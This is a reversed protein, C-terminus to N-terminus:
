TLYEIPLMHPEKMTITKTTTFQRGAEQGNFRGFGSNKFGGHPLETSDHVTMSNIHVAGSEIRRAVDLCQKYDQGWVSSSLGVDSDNAIRVADDVDKARVVILSPGFTEQHYIDQSADVHDLIVPSYSSLDDKPTKTIGQLLSAGKSVADDVLRHMKDAAARSSLEMRGLKTFREAIVSELEKVLGDAVCEVVVIRATSMCIHGGHLLGGFIINNAALKLDASELVVAPANGGLELIAPKVYKGALAGIQSGIQISGTFNVHRVDPHSILREVMEAESGPQFQIMQLVGKPVGAELMIKCLEHHLSAIQPNAKWIVTNGVSLAYCFARTGLTIGFNFPSMALCVGYPVRDVLALSGDATPPLEGKTETAVMATNRLLNVGLGKDTALVINTVSTDKAYAPGLVSDYREEVLNAAKLLIDRRQISPVKSWTLFAERAGKIALDIHEATAGHIHSSIENTRPHKSEFPKPVRVSEGNIILPIDSLNRKYTLSRVLHGTVLSRRAGPIQRSALM